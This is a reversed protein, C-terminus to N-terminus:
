RDSGMRADPGRLIRTAFQPIRRIGRFLMRFGGTLFIALGYFFELKLRNAYRQMDATNIHPTEPEFTITIQSGPKARPEDTEASSTVLKGQQDHFFYTVVDVTRVLELGFSFRFGTKVVTAQAQKGHSNLKWFDGVEYFGTALLVLGFVLSVARRGDRSTPLGLATCARSAVNHQFRHLRYALFFALGLGALLLNAVLIEM